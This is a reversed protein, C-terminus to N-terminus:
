HTVRYPPEGFLRPSMTCTLPDITLAILRGRPPPSPLLFLLRDVTSPRIASPHSSGLTRIIRRREKLRPRDTYFGLFGDRQAKGSRGRVIESNRFAM